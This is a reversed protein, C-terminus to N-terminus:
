ERRQTKIAQELTVKVKILFMAKKYSTVSPQYMDYSWFFTQGGNRSTKGQPHLCSIVWFRQPWLKYVEGNLYHLSAHQAPCSMYCPNSPLACSSKAPFGPFFSPDSCVCAYFPVYVNCSLWHVHVYLTVNLLTRVVMTPTYFCHTNRIRLIHRYDQTDLMCHAHAM